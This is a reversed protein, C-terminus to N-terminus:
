ANLWNRIIQEGLPTLVSEPHFQVGRVNYERHSLAMIENQSDIATIELCEPLGERNVIWSHYRGAEFSDPLDIFLPDEKKVVYITTAVGHYVKSLNRLSAGFVQGIAQM